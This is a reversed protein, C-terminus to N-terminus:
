KKNKGDKSSQYNNEKPNRKRSNDSSDNKNKDKSKSKESNYLKEGRESFGKKERGDREKSDM